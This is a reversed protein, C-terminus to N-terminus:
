NFTNTTISSSCVNRCYLKWLIVCELTYSSCKLQHYKFKLLLPVIFFSACNSTKGNAGRVYSYGLFSINIVLYKNDSHIYSPHLRFLYVNMCACVCFFRVEYSTPSTKSSPSSRVVIFTHLFHSKICTPAFLTDNAELFAVCVIDNGIHRKKQLQM